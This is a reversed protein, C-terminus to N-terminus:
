RQGFADDRTWQGDVLRWMRGTPNPNRLEVPLRHPRVNDYARLAAFRAIAAPVGVSTFGPHGTAPFPGGHVMAPSVAVGTPMKDNLLRGCRPRLVPELANYLPEDSGGAGHSYISAALTGELRGAIETLQTGDDAAVLVAATGFADRQFLGPSRLFEGGSVRFLTNAFRFGLGTVPRGGCLLEAGEAKLLATLAILEALVRESLLYGPPGTEFLSALTAAFDDGHEGGPFVILGPRTCFQGAGLTCAAFIEAAIEDAREELAGPLIFVPNVSSMELSIPKGARDAADKLALGARRSGTFALAGLLPHGALRLGDAEPFHYVMQVMAPPLGAERVARFAIEALLRTTEPHGPNAKAVVPNGAAIAAAFDGGGIANFAFPFNSPGFIAVPGGLPELISRLDHRTDITARRWSRDHCAEAAQRLQDTMRPLETSRLRPEEPLATERHAAAVLEERRAEAGSAFAELFAVLRGPDPRGLEAVAGRAAQLAMDLEAAGVIPFRSSLPAGTTPDVARFTEAERRVERWDGDILIPRIIM